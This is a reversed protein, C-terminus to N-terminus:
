HCILFHWHNRLLRWRLGQSRQAASHHDQHCSQRHALSPRPKLYCGHHEHLGPGHIGDVFKFHGEDDHTTRGFM